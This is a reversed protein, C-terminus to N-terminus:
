DSRRETWASMLKEAMDQAPAITIVVRQGLTWGHRNRLRLEAYLPEAGEVSVTVYERRELCMRPRVETVRGVLVLEEEKGEM